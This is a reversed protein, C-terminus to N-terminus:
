RTSSAATSTVSSRLAAPSCSSSSSSSIPPTQAGLAVAPLAPGLPDAVDAEARVEAIALVMETAGDGVEALM